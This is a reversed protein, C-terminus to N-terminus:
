FTVGYSVTYFNDDPNWLADLGVVLLDYWFHLAVPPALSYESWRYSLGIYSGVLTIYPVAVTLYALREEEPMVMANAAHISGFILSGLAWGGTESGTARVLSSQLLGRFAAEEALAVHEFLVVSNATTLAHGAGPPLEAGYVNVPGTSVQPLGGETLATFAVAAGTLGIIGAWVSPRKMVQVNFPAAALEATTDQPTYVLRRARQADLLADSWCYVSVDQLAVWPVLLGPHEELELAAEPKAAILAVGATFESAALGVMVAGETKQGSALHYVGPIMSLPTPAWVKTREAAAVERESPEALADLRATHVPMSCATTALLLPLVIRM